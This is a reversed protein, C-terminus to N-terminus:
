RREKEERDIQTHEPHDAIIESEVHQHEQPGDVGDTAPLRASSCRSSCCSSRISGKAPWGFACRLLPGAAMLRVRKRLRRTITSVSPTRQPGDWADSALFGFITKM